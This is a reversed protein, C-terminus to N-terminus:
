ENSKEGKSRAKAQQEEHIRRLADLGELLVPLGAGTSAAAEFATITPKLTWASTDARLNASFSPTEM